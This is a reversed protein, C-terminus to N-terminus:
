VFYLDVTGDEHPTSTVLVYDSKDRAREVCPGSQPVIVADVGEMMPPLYASGDPNDHAADTIPAFDGWGRVRLTHGGGVMRQIVKVKSGHFPASPFNFALDTPAIELEELSSLVVPGGGSGGRQGLHKQPITYAVLGAQLAMSIAAAFRPVIVHSGPSPLALGEPPDYGLLTAFPAGERRGLRPRFLLPKDQAPPYVADGVRIEFHTLNTV